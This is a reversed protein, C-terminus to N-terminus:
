AQTAIKTVTAPLEADKVRIALCLFILRGKGGGAAEAARSKGAGCSEPLVPRPIPAQAPLPQGASAPLPSLCVCDFALLSPAKLSCLAVASMLADTLALETDDLCHDPLSAFGSRVLRFLADASRHKRVPPAVISM